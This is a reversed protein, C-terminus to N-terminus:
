EAVERSRYLRIDDIFMKGYGGPNTMNRRTGLGIAIMDISTLTIGQDAFASLPIVWEIWTDITTANADDHVVVASSGAGNSVAV